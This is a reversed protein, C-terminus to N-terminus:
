YYKLLTANLLVANLLAASLTMKINMKQYYKYASLYDLFM